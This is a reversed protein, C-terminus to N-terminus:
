LIADVLISALLSKNQRRTMFGYFQLMGNIKAAAGAKKLLAM